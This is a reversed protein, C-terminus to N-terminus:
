TAFLTTVRGKDLLHLYNVVMVLTKITMLVQEKNIKGGNKSPKFKTCQNMDSLETGLCRTHDGLSLFMLEPLLSITLKLVTYTCSHTSFFKHVPKIPLQM